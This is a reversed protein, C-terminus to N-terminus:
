AEGGFRSALAANVFDNLEIADSAPLEGPGRNPYKFTYDVSKGGGIPLDGLGFSSKNSLTAAQTETFLLFALIACKSKM